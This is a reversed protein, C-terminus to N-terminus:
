NAIIGLAVGAAVGVIVSKIAGIKGKVKLKKNDIMLKDYQNKWDNIQIEQNKVIGKYTNEKSVYKGIISDKVIIRMEALNIITDKAILQQKAGDLEVLDKAVAVLVPQALPLPNTITDKPYKNNFSTILEHETYTDVAAKSSDVYKIIKKVNNKAFELKDWLVLDEAEMSAIIASDKALEVHMSDVAHVLSDQKALHVKDEVFGTYKDFAIYLVALIIVIIAITKKM